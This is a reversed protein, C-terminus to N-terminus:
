KSSSFMSSFSNTIGGLIGESGKQVGAGGESVTKAAAAASSSDGDGSMSGTAMKMSGSADEGQKEQITEIKSTDADVDANSNEKDAASAQAKVNAADEESISGRAEALASRHPLFCIHTHTLLRVIDYRM